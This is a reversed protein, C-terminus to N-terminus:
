AAPDEVAEDPCGGVQQRGEDPQVKVGVLHRPPVHEDDDTHHDDGVRQDAPRQPQVETARRQGAQVLHQSQADRHRDDGRQHEDRVVHGRRGYMGRDMGIVAPSAARITIAQPRAITRHRRSRREIPSRRAPCPAPSRSRRRPRRGAASGISSWRGWRSTPARHVARRRAPGDAGACRGPAPARRSRRCPRPDGCSTPAEVTTTAIGVAPGPGTAGGTGRRREVGPHPELHTGPILSRSSPWTPMRSTRSMLRGSMRPRWWISM